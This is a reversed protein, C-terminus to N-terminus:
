ELQGSQEHRYWVHPELCQYSFPKDQSLHPKYWSRVWNTYLKTADSWDGGHALLSVKPYSHVAKPAIQNYGAPFHVGASIGSPDKRMAFDLMKQAANDTRLM